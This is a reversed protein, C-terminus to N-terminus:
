IESWFSGFRKCFYQLDFGLHCCKMMLNCIVSLSFKFIADTFSKDDSRLSTNAGEKCCFSFLPSSFTTLYCTPCPSWVGFYWTGYESASFLSDFLNNLDRAVHGLDGWKNAGLKNLATCSAM